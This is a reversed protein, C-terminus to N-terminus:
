IAKINREVEKGIREINIFPGTEFFSVVNLQHNNFGGGFVVGKVFAIGIIDGNGDTDDNGM